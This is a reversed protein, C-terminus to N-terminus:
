YPMIHTTKTNYGVLCDRGDMEAMIIRLLEGAMRGVEPSLEEQMVVLLKGLAGKEAAMAERVRGEGRGGCCVKWLVAVAAERGERGVKTMKGMVARVVAAAEGGIAERGEACGTAVEMLEMAREAALAATDEAAIAKALAAVAGSRVIWTRARRRGAAAVATAMCRIGAEAAAPSGEERILKVLEPFLEEREAIAIKSQPDCSSSALISEVIRATDIRSQIGSGSSMVAFLASVSRDLDAVLASVANERSGEEIKDATLILALVKVAAEVVAESESGLLPAIAPAGASALRDVESRDASLHDALDRLPPLPDPSRRLRHLLNDASASGSAWHHMLSRLTLNPVLDTSPLPLRTAPCTRHGSDLWRQISSRDYTVGTCLSVPSRMVELSIPCRFLPPLRVELPPMSQRDEESIGM